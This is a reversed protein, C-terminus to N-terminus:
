TGEQLQMDNNRFGIRLMKTDILFEGGTVELWRNIDSIVDSIANEYTDFYQPQVMCINLLKSSQYPAFDGFDVVVHKDDKLPKLLLYRDPYETNLPNIMKGSQIHYKEAKRETVEYLTELKQIAELRQLSKILTIVAIIQENDMRQVVFANSLIEHLKNETVVWNKFAQFGLYESEEILGKVNIKELSLFTQIGQFSTDSTEYPYVTKILQGVISLAERDIIMKAYEFIEKNLRKQSFRQAVEYIVYLCPIAIFAATINHVLGKADGELELGANYLLYGAILCAAYPWM